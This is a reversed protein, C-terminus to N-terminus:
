GRRGPKLTKVSWAGSFCRLLERTGRMPKPEEESAAWAGLRQRPDDTERVVLVDPIMRVGVLLAERSTKSGKLTNGSLAAAQIPRTQM